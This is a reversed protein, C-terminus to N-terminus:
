GRGLVSLRRSAIEIRDGASLRANEVRRGNVRTGSPSGLDKIAWGGGKAKGIACHVGAVGEGELVLGAREKSSGVLMVGAGPLEIPAEPGGEVSLLLREEPEGNTPGGTM